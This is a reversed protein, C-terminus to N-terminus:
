MGTNSVNWKKIILTKDRVNKKRIKKVEIHIILGKKIFAEEGPITYSFAHTRMTPLITKVQWSDNFIAHTSLSSQEYNKM